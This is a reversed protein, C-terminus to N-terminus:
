EVFTFTDVGTGFPYQMAALYHEIAMTITGATKDYVGAVGSGDTYFDDNADM